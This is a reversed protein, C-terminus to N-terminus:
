SGAEYARALYSAVEPSRSTFRITFTAQCAEHPVVVKAYLEGDLETGHKGTVHLKLNTLAAIEGPADVEAGLQSLRLLSGRHETEGIHKGEVVFFRVPVGPDVRRFVERTVPVNVGFAGGIGRLDYALVPERAGKAKVQIPPGVEVIEGAAKVAPESVLVQGGVTYTEIRSTLNVTTGVVGYKARRQSGINGVVVEGTHVAIGMEVEPLGNARNFANVSEMARQMEAACAVARQADDDRVVPAGFIVLIADGIFEDITGRYKMIVDAMLALYNNLISVVQEPALREALSSFGRLDSMLITVSRREGGLKLGEPTELLSEVIEDSLYRGFTNRIFQNRVELHQALRQIEDTAHKLSLASQVRALVVPFDLPKTVYDNAGLKLAAVVDDSSDKATAMIVPLDARSSTERIKELVELGSLGPM